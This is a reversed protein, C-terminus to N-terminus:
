YPIKISKGTTLLTGEMANCQQIAEVSTHYRRALAYLTDGLRISHLFFRPTQRTVLRHQHSLGGEEIRLPQVGRSNEQVVVRQPTNGVQVPRELALYYSNVKSLFACWKAGPKGNDLLFHPCNKHEPTRGKRRWHYHPVIHDLPIHHQYMLWAALKACREITQSRSNGRNECMEIGISYNNGPGDFDAHEGQENTPLHQVVRTDDVTYHWVLYGTRNGGKKKYGRLKGHNLAEAHKWADAGRSFNQTSHITIYRPHLRRVYRRAHKGKPIFAKKINVERYLDEVSQHRGQYDQLIRKDPSVGCSILAGIQLFVLFFLSFKLAQRRLLSSLICFPM